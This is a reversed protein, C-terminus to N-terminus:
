MRLSSPVDATSMEIILMRVASKCVEHSAAGFLREYQAVLHDITVKPDPTTISVQKNELDVVLGQVKQAIKWALPGIVFEQGKIITVALTDGTAM